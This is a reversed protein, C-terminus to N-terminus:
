IYGKLLTVVRHSKRYRQVSPSKRLYEAWAPSMVLETDEAEIVGGDDRANGQEREKTEEERDMGAWQQLNPWIDQGIEAGGSKSDGGWRGGSAAVGELTKLISVGLSDPNNSDFVESGVHTGPVSDYHINSGSSSITNKSSCSMFLNENGVRDRTSYARRQHQEGKEIPFNDLHVPHAWM